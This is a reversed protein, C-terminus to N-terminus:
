ARTLKWIEEHRCPERHLRSVSCLACRTTMKKGLTNVVTISRAVWRLLDYLETIPINTTEIHPDRTETFPTVHSVNISDTVVQTTQKLQKRAWAEKRNKSAEARQEATWTRPM